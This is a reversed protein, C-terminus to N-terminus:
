WQEYTSLDYRHLFCITKLLFFMIEGQHHHVVCRFMHSSCPICQSDILTFKTSTMLIIDLIIYCHTQLPPLLLCTPLFLLNKRFNTPFGCIFVDFTPLFSVVHISNSYHRHKTSRWSVLVHLTFAKCHCGNKLM